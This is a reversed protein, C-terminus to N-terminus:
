KQEVFVNCMNRIESDAVLSCLKKDELAVAVGSICKDKDEVDKLSNCLDSDETTTAIRSVCRETLGIEDFEAENLCISPNLTEIAIPLMCNGIRQYDDSVKRCLEYDNNKKALNQYCPESLGTKYSELAECQDANTLSNYYQAECTTRSYEIATPETLDKCVSIDNLKIAINSVCDSKYRDISKCLELDELGSVSYAICQEKPRASYKLQNCLDPNKSKTANAFICEDRPADNQIHSCDKPFSNTQEYVYIFCYDRRNQHNIKDCISVDNNSLASEKYCMDKLSSSFFLAPCAGSEIIKLTLPKGLFKFTSIIGFLLLLLVILLIKKKKSKKKIELENNFNNINQQKNDM